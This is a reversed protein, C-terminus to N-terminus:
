QEFQSKFDQLCVAQPLMKNRFGVEKNLYQWSVIWGWKAPEVLSHM